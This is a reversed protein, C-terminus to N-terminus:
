PYAGVLDRAVELALRTKGSGGAGTLTLLRTMALARKVEIMEKRRGVFSTRPAPLNHRGLGAPEEPLVGQDRGEEAFAGSLIEEHLDRISANPRVGLERSLAEERAPEEATARGLAEIAPEQEGREEYTAALEVLLAVNLRRLEQRRSEMWEEYRDAPLLEGAYLALATRYAAPERERRATAAAQEFEEVDVWLTGAPCLALWGEESAMYRSGDAPDLVRRAAHLTRRLNNSAASKGLHPWLRDM